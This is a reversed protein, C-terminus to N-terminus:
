RENGPLAVSGNLRALCPTSGSRHYVRAVRGGIGTLADHAIADADHAFQWLSREAHAERGFFTVVDGVQAM